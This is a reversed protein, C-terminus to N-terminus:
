PVSPSKAPVFVGAGTPGTWIGNEVLVNGRLMTMVPFGTFEWGDWLSYDCDSHLDALTVRRRVDPDMVVIDADSGIAIIGKRPYIGFLKAVSTSAVDVYRNISIKGNKVGESFLYAMRTEIGNHGGAANDVQQGATKQALPITFDDSSAVDLVGSSLAQWLADRDRESKLSPYNHYKVGNPKAYDQKCFALYNHLAEGYVPLRKGQAEAIAEIGEISSVHVIYLPSGSRRALLLMRMIAAEECLSPRAEAINVVQQRNERYLKQVCYDIICDDECHVMAIGGHRATQQMVGWIRGDHAFVAGAASSGSFTTFMKFSTVGGSIADPIEDFVDLSVDGTIMAHLAYDVDPRDNKIEAQKSEIARTLSETGRQLAFDIFTTTGGFAAARGGHTASQARMVPSLAINFHVHADIGGPVVYKGQADIVRKAQLDVSQPAAFAVIRGAKIGVDFRESADPSVVTGGRIVVDLMQVEMLSAARQGSGNV